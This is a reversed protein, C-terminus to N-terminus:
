MCTHSYTTLLNVILCDESNSEPGPPSLANYKSPETERRGVGGGQLRAAASRLSDRSTLGGGGGLSNGGGGHRVM